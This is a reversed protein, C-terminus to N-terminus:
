YPKLCFFCMGCTTFRASYAKQKQATKLKVPFLTSNRKAQRVATRKSGGNKDLCKRLM